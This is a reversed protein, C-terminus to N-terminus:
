YRLLAVVLDDLTTAPSDPRVLRVTGGTAVVDAVIEALRGRAEPEATRRRDSDILLLDVRGERGNTAVVDLGIATRGTGARSRYRDVFTALETALRPELRRAAADRLEELSHREPSGLETLLVLDRHPRVSRLMSAEYSVAAAVLPLPGDHVQAPLARDVEAVFRELQSKRVDSASDGSHVAAITGPGLPPGGHLSTEAPHRELWAMDDIGSPLDVDTLPEITTATCRYLEVRHQSLVLLHFPQASAIADALVTLDPRRAVVADAEVPASVAVTEVHDEAVFVALGQAETRDADHFQEFAQRLMREAARDNMMWPDDTLLRRVDRILSEGVDDITQRGATGRVPPVMLTVYPGPLDLTALRRLNAYESRVEHTTM